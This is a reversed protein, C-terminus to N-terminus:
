SLDVPHEIEFTTAGGNNSRPRSANSEIASMITELKVGLANVLREQTRGLRRDTIFTGSIRRIRDGPFVNKSRDAAGGPKVEAVYVDGTEDDEELVMGM